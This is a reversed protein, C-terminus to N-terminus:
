LFVVELHGRLIRRYSLAPRNKSTGFPTSTKDPPKDIVLCFTGRLQLETRM